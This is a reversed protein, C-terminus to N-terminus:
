TGTLRQRVYVARAENRAVADMPRGEMTQLHAPLTLLLLENVVGPSPRDLLAMEVGMRVQSLFCLSEQSTIRAAVKLLRLAREIRHQFQEPHNERLSARDAREMEVIRAATSAVSDVIEDEARGLTAVNSMQYIDGTGHASEGFVGRLRLNPGRALEVVRDMEHTMVIAPLHLLVSARLGTGVNAPGATLYGFRSSFAFPIRESLLDDLEDVRRAAERLQLGGLTVQARLHDEDNVIVGTQETEDFAVAGLRGNAAQEARILSRESLFQRQLTSLRELRVYKLPPLADLSLLVNRSLEELRARQQDSARGVFPYGDINRALRVRSSLVVDGGPGGSLWEVSRNQLSTFDM